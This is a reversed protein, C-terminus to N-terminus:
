RLRRVVDMMQKVRNSDIQNSYINDKKFYSGVIAGDAVSLLSESNEPTIGSGLLVPTNGSVKKVRQAAEIAPANGTALGTVIIADVKGAVADIASDEIPRDVLPISHKVHIDAYVDIDLADIIKQYRYVGRSAGQYIGFNSVMAENFSISRIFKAGAAKAVALVSTDGPEMIINVGVPLSTRSVIEHVIIAMTAVTEPGIVPDHPFDNSNEVLIGDVGGRELEEADILAADLIEKVSTFGRYGLTTKLNVMGIIPKSESFVNLM